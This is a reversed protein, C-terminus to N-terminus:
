CHGRELITASKDPLSLSFSCGRSLTRRVGIIRNSSAFRNSFWRMSRTLSVPGWFRLREQCIGCPSLVCFKSTEDNRYICISHTVTEDRKHAELLSGLEMCVSLADLDTDPAVSTLIDGSALRLAAAGGWGAPYRKEILATASQYLDQEVGMVHGEAHRKSKLEYNFHDTDYWLICM